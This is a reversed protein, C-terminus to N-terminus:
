LANNLNFKTVLQINIKLTFVHKVRINTSIYFLFFIKCYNILTGINFTVIIHLIFVYM